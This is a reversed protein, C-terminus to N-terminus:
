ASAAARAGAPGLFPMLAFEVLAPRLRRLQKPKGSVLAEYLLWYLGDLVTEELNPPGEGAEDRAAALLPAFAALARDRREGMHAGVSPAELICARALAPHEGLFDLLAGIGVDVRASAEAGAAEVAARVRQAAEVVGEDYAALFADEKSSFNEYFKLKSVGGRKIIAAVSTARYGVEAAVEVVATLIRRRQHHVLVERRLPHGGPRAQSIETLSREVV